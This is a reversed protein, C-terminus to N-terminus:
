VCLVFLMLLLPTFRVSVGQLVERFAIEGGRDDGWLFCLRSLLAPTLPPCALPRLAKATFKHGRIYFINRLEFYRGACSSRPRSMGMAHTLARLLSLVLPACRAAAHWASHNSISAHHACCPSCLHAGACM